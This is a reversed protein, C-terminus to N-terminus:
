GTFKISLPYSRADLIFEASDGFAQRFAPRAALRQLYEGFVAQQCLGYARAWIVIHGLVCDAASFQEGCAFPHQQFVNILTPEVETQFKQRYRLSTRPDAEGTPLVHEHARIQWLIMDISHAAYHLMQVYRARAPLDNAPPALKASPFADAIFSIIAASETLHVRTGDTWTVELVPASHLPNIQLFDAQYQRASNIDVYEVDFADEFIEHLIWKARASRSAPAHYLKLQQILM